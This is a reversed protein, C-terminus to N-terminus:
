RYEECDIVNGDSKKLNCTEVNECNGCLGKPISNVTYDAQNIVSTINNKLKSSDTCSFEECFIIPRTHNMRYSCEDINLCNICLGSTQIREKM